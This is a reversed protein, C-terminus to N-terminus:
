AARQAVPIESVRSLGTARDAPNDVLATVLVRYEAVHGRRGSRTRVIAGADILERTLREVQRKAARWLKLEPGSEPCDDPLPPYGLMVATAQWSQFYTRAPVGDKTEADMVQNAMYVLLRFAADTVRHLGAWALADKVTKYGM